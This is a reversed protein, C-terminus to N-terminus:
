LGAGLTVGALPYTQGVEDGAVGFESVFLPWDWDGFRPDIDHGGDARGLRARPAPQEFRFGGPATWDEGGDEDADVMQVMFEAFQQRHMEEVSENRRRQRAQECQPAGCRVRPRGPGAQEFRAGCEACWGERIAHLVVATARQAAKKHAESCFRKGTRPKMRGRCWACETTATSGSM